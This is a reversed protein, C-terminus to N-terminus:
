QRPWANAQSRRMAGNAPEVMRWVLASLTYLDGGSMVFRTAFDHRWFSETCSFAGHQRLHLVAFSGFDVDLWAGLMTVNPVVAHKHEGIICGEELEQATRVVEGTNKAVTIVGSVRVAACLRNIVKPAPIVSWNLLSVPLM